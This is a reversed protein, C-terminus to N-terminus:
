RIKSAFNVSCFNIQFIKRFHSSSSNLNDCINLLYKSIKFLVECRFNVKLREKGRVQCDNCKLPSVKPGLQVAAYGRSNFKVGVPGFGLIEIPLANKKLIRKTRGEKFSNESFHDSCVCSWKSPTYNPVKVLRLWVKRREENKPLHFFGIVRANEQKRKKTKKNITTEDLKDKHAKTRNKCGLAICFVM